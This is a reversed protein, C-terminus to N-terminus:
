VKDWEIGKHPQMNKEFRAKLISILEEAQKTTWKKINNNRKM